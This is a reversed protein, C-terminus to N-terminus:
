ESVCVERCVVRRMVRSKLRFEPPDGSHTLFPGSTARHRGLKLEAHGKGSGPLILAKFINEESKSSRSHDVTLHDLILFSGWGRRWGLSEKEDEDQDRHANTETQRRTETKTRDQKIDTLGTQLRISKRERTWM